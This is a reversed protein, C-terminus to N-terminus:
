RTSPRSPATTPGRRAGGATQHQVLFGGGARGALGAPVRGAAGGPRPQAAGVQWGTGGSRDTTGPDAVAEPLAGPRRGARRRQSLTQASRTASVEAHHHEPRAAPAVALCLPPVPDANAVQLLTDVPTAGVFPPRGTLLEYLIAGLAWIDSAPGIDRNRGEAQEPSMYSPTGLISGSRTYQEAAAQGERGSNNLRKALGFDTIKPLCDVLSFVSLVGSAARDKATNETSRKRQLLINGPKLDRHVIGHQHAFQIARALPLILEAASRAPMPTGDLLDALNGSNVYELAFYPLGSHEGIEYIQVINPHQLQAVSEAETRFRSRVEQSSHDGALIMKLAVPRKLRLDMARYVVGMGGRGVEELIDYGPVSPLLPPLQPLPRSSDSTKLHAVGETPEGRPEVSVVEEGGADAPVLTTAEPPGEQPPPGPPAPPLGESGAETRPPNTPPTGEAGGAPSRGSQDPPLSWSFTRASDARDDPGTPQMFWRCDPWPLIWASSWTEHRIWKGNYVRGWRFTILHCPRM